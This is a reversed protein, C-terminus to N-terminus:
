LAYNLYIITKLLDLDFIGVEHSSLCEILIASSTEHGEKPLIGGEVKCKLPGASDECDNHTNFKVRLPLFIAVSKTRIRNRIRKHPIAFLFVACCSGWLEPLHGGQM